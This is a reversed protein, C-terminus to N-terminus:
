NLNVTRYVRVKVLQRINVLTRHSIIYLAVMLLHVSYLLLKYAVLMKMLNKYSYVPIGGGEIQM